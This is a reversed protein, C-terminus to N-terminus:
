EFSDKFIPDVTGACPTQFAIAVWEPHDIFPNRNGQYGYIIDNRLQEGADVAYAALPVLAFLLALLRIM